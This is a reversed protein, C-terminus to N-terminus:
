SRPTTSRSSRAAPPAVAADRLLRMTERHMEREDAPTRHDRGLCHLLGHAYLYPASRERPDEAQHIIEPCLVIPGVLAPGVSPIATEFSLVDTPRDVGRWARNLSRMRRPSAIELEVILERRAFFRVAFVRTIRRLSAPAVGAAPGSIRLKSRRVSPKV